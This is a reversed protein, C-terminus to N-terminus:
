EEQPAGDTEQPQNQVLAPNFARRLEAFSFLAADAPSAPVAQARLREATARSVCYCTRVKGDWRAGKKRFRTLMARAFVFPALPVQGEADCWARYLVFAADTPISPFRGPYVRGALWLALSDEGTGGRVLLAELEASSADDPDIDM